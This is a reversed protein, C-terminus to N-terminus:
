RVLQAIVGDISGRSRELLPILYDVSHFFGMAKLADLEHSWREHSASSSTAPTGTVPASSAPTPQTGNAAALDALLSARTVTDFCGPIVRLQKSAQYNHLAQATRPGFVGARWRIASESMLGRAILFRQLQEVGPGSSGAEFEPTPLIEGRPM